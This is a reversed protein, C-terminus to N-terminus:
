GVPPIVSLIEAVSPKGRRALVIKGAPDVVYVTRRVVLGSAHYTKAVRQGSDVLLPFPLQFKSRFKGHKEAAWPNIGVVVTGRAQVEPWQDRLECLQKTCTPTDDGPYFVIVVYKKRQQNLVFVSGEEDPLIFAPAVSGVPLVDRFWSFM